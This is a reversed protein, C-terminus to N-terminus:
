ATPEAGIRRRVAKASTSERGEVSEAVELVAPALRQVAEEDKIALWTAVARKASDRTRENFTGLLSSLLGVTHLYWGTALEHQGTLHAIWGRMERMSITKLDREGYESTMARDLQEAEVGASHLVKSDKSSFASTVRLIGERYAEPMEESSGSATTRHSLSSPDFEQQRPAPVRQQTPQRSDWFGPFVIGWPACLIDDNDKM